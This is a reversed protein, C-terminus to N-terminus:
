AGSGSAAVESDALGAAAGAGPSDKTEPEAAVGSAGRGRWIGDSFLTTGFDTRGTPARSFAMRGTPCIGMGIAEFGKRM